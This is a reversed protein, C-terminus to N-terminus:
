NVPNLFNSLSAKQTPKLTTINKDTSTHIITEFESRPIDRAGLSALHESYVQCDIIDFGSEALLKCLIWYALKSTNDTRSFMSEGFFVAGIAIGYLGGALQNDLWIEISHAHGAQHLKNYASIMENTIWTDTSDTRPEACATIVELFAQNISFSFNQRRVAKKLSKSAHFESPFMVMRPDPSWWLIPEGTSYWPFIGRKYAQLLRKESLDGGIALLGNPETQAKELPPFSDIDDFPQIYTLM